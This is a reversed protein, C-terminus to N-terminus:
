IIEYEDNLRDSGDNDSDEQRFKNRIYTVKTNEDEIGELRDNSIIDLEVVVSRHSGNVPFKVFSFKGSNVDLDALKLKFRAEQHNNEIVRYEDNVIKIEESQNGRPTKYSVGWRGKFFKSIDSRNVLKNLRTQLDHNAERLEAADIRTSELDAEMKDIENELRLVESKSEISERDAVLIKKREQEFKLKLDYYLNGDVSHKRAIEIKRDIKKRKMEESYEIIIYDILPLVYIYIFAILVPVLITDRTNIYKFYIYDVINLGNFDERKFFLVVFVIKWNWILWSLIFSGYFPSRARETMSHPLDKLFNM